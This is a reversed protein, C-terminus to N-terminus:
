RDQRTCVTKDLDLHKQVMADWQKKAEAKKAGSMRALNPMDEGLLRNQFWADLEERTATKFDSTILWMRQVMLMFLKLTM